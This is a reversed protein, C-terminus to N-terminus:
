RLLCEQPIREMEAIESATKLFSDFKKGQRYGACWYLSSDYKQFFENIRKIFIERIYKGFISSLSIPFIFKDGSKIFYLNLKKGKSCVTFFDIKEKSLSPLIEFREGLCHLIKKKGWGDIKGSFFFIEEKGYNELFLDIFDSISQAELWYKDLNKEEGKRLAFPCLVKSKWFIFEIRKEKLVKRLKESINKIFQTEVEWVPFKYPFGNGCHSRKWDAPCDMLISEGNVAIGPFFDNDFDQPLRGNLLFYFALATSEGLRYTNQDNSRFLEKSDCVILKKQSSKEKSIVEKLEDWFFDKNFDYGREIRFATATVVLPGLMRQNRLGLGNEDIGVIVM